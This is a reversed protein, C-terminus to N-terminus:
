SRSDDLGEHVRLLVERMEDNSLASVTAELEARVADRDEAVSEAVTADGDVFREVTALKRTLAHYESLLQEYRDFLLLQDVTEVLESTGVPKVLYDDFPLDLVEVDPDVATVLVVRCNARWEEIHALIAEGSMGPMRRDLVVVDVASDMETLAEGGNRATRVEHEAERLAHEFSELVGPEDDVVLM